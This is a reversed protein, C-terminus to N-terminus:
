MGFEMRTQGQKILSWNAEDSLWPMIIPRAPRSPPAEDPKFKKKERESLMMRKADQLAEWTSMKMEYEKYSTHYDDLETRVRRQDERFSDLLLQEMVAESVKPPPRRMNFNGIIDDPDDAPTAKALADEIKLKKKEWDDVVRSEAQLFKERRTDIVFDKWVKYKRWSKQAKKVRRSFNKVATVTENQSAMERMYTLIVLAAKEVRKAAWKRHFTNILVQLKRLGIRIKKGKRRWYLPRYWNQITKAAATTIKLKERVPRNQLMGQLMRNNRSGWASLIMWRLEFKQRRMHTAQKFKSEIAHEARRRKDEQSQEVSTRYLEEEELQKEKFAQIAQNKRALKELHGNFALAKGAPTNTHLSNINRAILNEVGFSSEKMSILVKQRLESFAEPKTRYLELRQQLAVDTMKPGRATSTQKPKHSTEHQAKKASPDSQSQTSQGEGFFVSASKVKEMVALLDRKVQHEQTQGVSVPDWVPKHEPDSWNANTKDAVCKVRQNLYSTIGSLVPECSPARGKPIKVDIESRQTRPLDYKITSEYYRAGPNRARPYLPLLQRHTLGRVPLDLVRRVEADPLHVEMGMEGDRVALSRRAKMEPHGECVLM